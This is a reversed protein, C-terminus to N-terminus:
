HDMRKNLSARAKKKNQHQQNIQNTEGNIM